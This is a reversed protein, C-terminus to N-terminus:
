RKKVKVVKMLEDMRSLDEQVLKVLDTLHKGIVAMQARTTPQVAVPIENLGRLTIESTRKMESLWNVLYGVTEKNLDEKRVANFIGMMGFYADIQSTVIICTDFLSLLVAQDQAKPLMANITKSQAFLKNRLDFIRFDAASARSELLLMCFCVAIVVFINKKM